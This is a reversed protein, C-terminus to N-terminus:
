KKFSRIFAGAVAKQDAQYTAKMAATVNNGGQLSRVFGDFKPIGGQKTMFEVLAHGVAGVASPSFTGDNFIDDPKALSALMAPVRTRMEKVHLNESDQKAALYVGTGRVVWEPVNGGARKLFAGTIHDIVNFKMGANEATVDDGVDQVVVYADDMATSVLSHGVMEAPIQQRNNNVVNFEEYGFRDKIVFITLRGKWVRDGKVRFMSRLQKVHEEAWGYVVQMREAGANGYVLVEKGEVYQPRDKSFAADWQDNSRKLRHQEFEEPTLKALREATLDAETPVLRRLPAKPDLGKDLKCGEEIWTKLKTHNTRTIRAQGQPMRKDGPQPTGVRQWLISGDLNGPLLVRGSNGGKMMDEFTVLSLGGRPDNGGHCRGCLNVVFPAVDKIFSVTEKGTATPIPTDPKDAAPAQGIPANRDTGDFPAGLVIWRQILMAEAAPLAAAGRPMRRNGQAFLRQYLLSKAPNGPVIPVGSRGGKALKTFTDFQLQGSARNVHCNGCRNKLIPAIQKTFSIAPGAAKGPRGKKGSKARDLLDRQMEIRRKVLVIARDKDNGKALKEVTAAIASLSKDAEDYKKRRILSSLKRIERNVKGLEKRQASTLAARSPVVSVTLSAVGVLGALVLITARM